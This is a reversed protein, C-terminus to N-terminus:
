QRSKCIHIYVVTLGSIQEPRRMSVTMECIDNGVQEQVDLLIVTVSYTDQLKDIIVRLNSMRDSCDAM